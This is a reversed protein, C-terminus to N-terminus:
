CTLTSVYRRALKRDADERTFTWDIGRRQANRRRQWAHIERQASARDMLRRALCQRELISIEIEAM